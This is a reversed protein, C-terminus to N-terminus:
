DIKIKYKTELKALNGYMKEMENGDDNTIYNAYNVYTTAVTQAFDIDKKSTIKKDRISYNHGFRNISMSIKKPIKTDTNDLSTNIMSILEQGDSYLKKDVGQTQNCASLVFILSVIIIFLNVFNKM